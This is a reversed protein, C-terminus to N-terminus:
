VGICVMLMGEAQERRENLVMTVRQKEAVDQKRFVDKLTYGARKRKGNSNSPLGSGSDSAEQSSDFSDDLDISHDNSGRGTRGLGNRSSNGNGNIHRSSSAEQSDPVERAM